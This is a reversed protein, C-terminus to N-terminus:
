HHQYLLEMQPKPQEQSSDPLNTDGPGTSHNESTPSRNTLLNQQWRELLRVARKKVRPERELSKLLGTIPRNIRSIMLVNYVTRKCRKHLGIIELYGQMTQIPWYLPNSTHKRAYNLLKPCLPEVLGWGLMYLIIPAPLSSNCSPTSPTM